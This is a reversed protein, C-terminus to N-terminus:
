PRTPAEVARKKASKQPEVEFGRAHLVIENALARPGCCKPNNLDYEFLDKLRDFFPDVIDSGIGFSNAYIFPITINVDVPLVPPPNTTNSFVQVLEKLDSRLSAATKINFQDGGLWNHQENWRDEFEETNGQSFDMKRMKTFCMMSKMARVWKQSDQHRLVMSSTINYDDELILKVMYGFAIKGLHNGMEGNLQIVITLNDRFISPGAADDGLSTEDSGPRDDSVINAESDSWWRIFFLTGNEGKHGSHKGIPSRLLISLFM